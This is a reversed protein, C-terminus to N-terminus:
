YNVQKLEFYAQPYKCVPCVKPAQEAVHLHGCVRCVWYVKNDKRFVLDGEVNSLLKRFREEHDKEIKAINEFAMAIQPFGEQRAIEAFKPYVETHEEHEGNAAELLNESTTGIRGAPYGADIHVNGGELFKFFIEAHHFENHATQYFFDAIQEYGEKKAIDAFITYRNRAQSEGAFGRLLNKETETGKLSKM